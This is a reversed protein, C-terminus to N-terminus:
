TCTCGRSGARLRAGLEPPHARSVQADRARAHACAHLALCPVSGQRGGGGRQVRGGDDAASAVRGGADGARLPSTLVAAAAATPSPRSAVHFAWDCVAAATSGAQRKHSRSRAPFTYCPVPLGSGCSSHRTTAQARAVRVPNTVPVWKEASSDVFEGNILLKVTPQPLAVCEHSRRPRVGRTHALSPPNSSCVGACGDSVASAGSAGDPAGSAYCRAQSLVRAHLHLRLLSRRAPQM